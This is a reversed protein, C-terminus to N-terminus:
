ENNRDDDRDTRGAGRKGASSWHAKRTRDFFDIRRVTPRFDIVVIGGFVGVTKM